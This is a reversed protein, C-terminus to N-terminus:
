AFSSIGFDILFYKKGVQMINAPKIDKHVIGLTHMALVNAKMQLYFDTFSNTDPINLEDCKEMFFSVCDNGCVIDISNEIPLAPAINFLSLLKLIAVETVVYMLDRRSIDLQLINSVFENRKRAKISKEVYVKGNLEREYIEGYGGAGIKKQIGQNLFWNGSLM